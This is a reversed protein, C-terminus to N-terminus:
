LLGNRKLIAEIVADQEPTTPIFPHSTTPGCLGLMAMAKKLASLPSGGQSFFIGTVDSVMPQLKRVAPIDGRAAAEYLEVCLKPCVNCIGLLGGDGGMMISAGVFFESGNLVTFDTERLRHILEFHLIPDVSSDKVGHINPHGSLEQLLDASLQVQTRQPVNYVYVPLPSADALESFFRVAERGAHVYYYPLTAVAADAGFDAAQQAREIARATGVDAVHALIPVRGGVQDIVWEHVQRWDEDRLMPGEGTSGCVFFGSVGGDVQAQTLKRVGAEDPRGDARLPTALAPIIGKLKDAM